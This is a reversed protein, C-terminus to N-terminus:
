KMEECIEKIQNSYATGVARWFKVAAESLELGDALEVEGDAHILIAEEGLIYFSFVENSSYIAAQALASEPVLLMLPEEPAPVLPPESPEGSCGFCLLCLLLFFKVNNGKTVM